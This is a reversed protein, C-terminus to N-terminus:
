DKLYGLNVTGVSFSGVSISVFEHVASTNSSHSVLCTM